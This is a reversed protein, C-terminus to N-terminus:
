LCKLAEEIDERAMRLQAEIGDPDRRDQMKDLMDRWDRAEQEFISEMSECDLCSASKKVAGWAMKHCKADDKHKDYCSNFVHVWQRQKKASLKSVKEPPNNPDFPM